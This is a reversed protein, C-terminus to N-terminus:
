ILIGEVELDGCLCGEKTFVSLIRFITIVDLGIVVVM